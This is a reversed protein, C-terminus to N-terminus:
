APAEDVDAQVKEGDHGAGEAPGTREAPPQRAVEKLREFEAADVPYGIPITRLPREESCSPEPIAGPSVSRGTTEGSGSRVPTDKPNQDMAIMRSTIQASGRRDRVEGVARGGLPAAASAVVYPHSGRTAPELPPHRLRLIDWRFGPLVEGGPQALSASARSRADGRLEGAEEARSGHSGIAIM